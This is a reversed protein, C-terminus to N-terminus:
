GTPDPPQVQDVLSVPCLRALQVQPQVEPRDAAIQDSVDQDTPQMVISASPAEVPQTAILAWAAEVPQTATSAGPADVPQTAKKQSTAGTTKQVPPIFPIGTVVVDSKQVPKVPVTFSKALFMAELWAFQESWKEDLSKLDDKFDTSPGAKTTKKPSKHSTKKKKSPTDESHYNRDGKGREVQGWVTVDEPAGKTSQLSPHGATEKTRSHLYIQTTQVWGKRVVGQVSQILM